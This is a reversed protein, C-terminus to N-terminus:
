LACWPDTADVVEIETMMGGFDELDNSLHHLNTTYLPYIGAEIGNAALDLVVDVTSGGGLTVSSTEFYLNEDATTYARRSRLIKSDKGVVQMPIGLVSVTYSRVIGVSSIRLLVREDTCARVKSHV